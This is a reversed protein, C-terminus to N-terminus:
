LFRELGLEKLKKVITGVNQSQEQNAILVSNNEVVVILGEVGLLAVLKGDEAHVQCNQSEIMLPPLLPSTDRVQGIMAWTGIDSWQCDLPAFIAAKATQEMVAYDVSTSRVAGFCEPDLLINGDLNSAADLAASAADLIDPAHTELEDLMLSAPFLFIGANWSFAPDAIYKAATELDPKERFETVEYLSGSIPDGRQIYGFGTEPRDPKIGFTTIYGSKAMRAAETVAAAFVEPQGIFHDSPLLLALGDPDKEAIHRAAVAAVAATNRAMPELIVAGPIVGIEALQDRILGAYRQNSIIVPPEFEDGKLRLVTDQFVTKDTVLRHFQKPHGQTSVPWLRTGAGGCMIVPYIRM